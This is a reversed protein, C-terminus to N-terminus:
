SIAEQKLDTLALFIAQIDGDFSSARVGVPQSIQFGNVGVGRNGRADSASGDTYTHLWEPTLYRPHNGLCNSKINLMDKKDEPQVLDLKCQAKHDM